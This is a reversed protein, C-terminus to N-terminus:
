DIRLHLDAIVKKWKAVDARLKQAFEGASNAVVEAGQSAFLERVEASRLVEVIDAHLKDLIPKPTKAPAFMGYWTDAEYGRLGAEDLTPVDAAMAPRKASTTALARLKGTKIHPLSSPINDFMMHVQGGLLDTVAPGSGKYPIHAIDSGTMQTFMAGSM